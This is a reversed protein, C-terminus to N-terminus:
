WAEVFFTAGVGRVYICGEHREYYEVTAGSAVAGHVNTGDFSFELAAGTARIRIGQSWAQATDDSPQTFSWKNDDFDATATGTEYFRLSAGIGSPFPAPLELAM